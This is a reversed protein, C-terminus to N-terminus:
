FDIMLNCYKKGCPLIWMTGDRQECWCGEQAAASSLRGLNGVFIAEKAASFFKKLDKCLMEHNCLQRLRLIVVILFSFANEVVELGKELLAAFLESAQEDFAKKSFVFVFCVVFSCV